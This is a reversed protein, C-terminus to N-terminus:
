KLVVIGAVAERSIEASRENDSPSVVIYSKETALLLKYPISRKAFQDDKKIEDPM